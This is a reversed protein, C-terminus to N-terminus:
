WRCLCSVRRVTEYHWGQRLLTMESWVDESDLAFLEAAEQHRGASHFYAYASMVNQIEIYAEVRALRQELTLDKTINGM